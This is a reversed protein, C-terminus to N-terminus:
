DWYIRYRTKPAYPTAANVGNLRTLTMSGSFTVDTGGLNGPYWVWGATTNDGAILIASSVFTTYTTQSILRCAFPTHKVVGGQAVRIGWYLSDTGAMVSDITFVWVAHANVVSFVLTTDGASFYGDIPNALPSVATWNGQANVLNPLQLQGNYETIGAFVSSTVIIFLIILKKM